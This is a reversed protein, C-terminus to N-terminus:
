PQVQEWDALAGVERGYQELDIHDDVLGNSYNDLTYYRGLDGNEYFLGTSRDTFGRAVRLRCGWTTCSKRDYGGIRRNIRRILASETVTKEMKGIEKGPRRRLLVM